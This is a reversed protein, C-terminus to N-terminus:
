HSSTHHSSAHIGPPSSTLHLASSSLSDSEPLQQLVQDKNENSQRQQPNNTLSKDTPFIPTPTGSPSAVTSSLFPSSPVDPTSELTSYSPPITPMQRQLLQMITGIEASMCSELRSIQRQLADLRNELEVEQRQSIISPNPPPPSFPCHSSSAPYPLQHSPLEPPPSPLSHSCPVEQYTHEGRSESGWFTFINSVRTHTSPLKYKRQPRSFGEDSDEGGLLGIVENNVKEMNDMRTLLKTTVSHLKLLDMGYLSGELLDMITALKIDDKSAEQLKKFRYEGECPNVASPPAMCVCKKCDTGKTVTEVTYFDQAPSPADNDHIRSCDSRKIPRVICRCVCDSGSSVTKVKDYDGLLQSIINEQNDLEEELPKATGEAPAGRGPSQQEGGRLSDEAQAASPADEEPKDQVTAGTQPTKERWPDADLVDLGSVACCFVLLSLTRWM